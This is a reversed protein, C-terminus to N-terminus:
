RFLKVELTADTQKAPANSTGSEFEFPSRFTENEEDSSENRQWEIRKDIQKNPNKNGRGCWDPSHITHVCPSFYSFAFSWFQVSLLMPLRDCIVPTNTSWTLVDVLFRRCRKVVSRGEVVM